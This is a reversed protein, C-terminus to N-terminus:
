LFFYRAEKQWGTTCAKWLRSKASVNRHLREVHTMTKRYERYIPLNTIPDLSKSDLEPCGVGVGVCGVAEYVTNQEEM